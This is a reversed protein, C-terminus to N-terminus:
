RYLQRQTILAEVKPPVLGDLPIGKAVRRRIAHASIDLRAAEIFHVQRTIGPLVAELARLDVTAGPRRLVGLQTHSLFEQPRGWTPLDRLSDGGMLFFLTATPYQAAVLAVTDAAWHPGPRDIDIRSIVHGPLHAIAAAVLELRDSVPTIDRGQKHPPDAAVIWLVRDLALQEQAAEALRLHGYHPPDFTGGM